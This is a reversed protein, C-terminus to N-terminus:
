KKENEKAKNDIENEYVDKEIAVYSYYCYDKSIFCNYNLRELVKTFSTSRYVDFESKTNYLIVSKGKFKDAINKNWLSLHYYEGDFSPIPNSFAQFLIQYINNSVVEAVERREQNDVLYKIQKLIAAGIETVRKEITM